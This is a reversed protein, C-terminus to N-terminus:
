NGAAATPHAAIEMARAMVPDDGAAMQVPTPLILEDPTVGTKELENGDPMVLAADSVSVGYLVGRDGGINLQRQLAHMVAGATRDGIVVGRGTLQFLRALVESASGSRSDVLVAVPGAFAGEGGGDADLPRERGREVLTGVKVRERYILGLLSQLAEVSGGGNARLDLVLGARGHLRRRAEILQEPTVTFTPLTWVLVQGREELRPQYAEAPLEAARILGAIGGGDQMGTLALAHFSPEVKANLRLDRVTGDASRIRANLWRQPRLVHAIYLIQWLHERTVLDGNVALVQDGPRVGQRAADSGPEVRQVFCSDGVMLMAWGYSVMVPIQPPVFFTHSDRLTTPLQAVLELADTYTRARRIRGDLEAARRGLDVGRFTRDYYRREIEGRVARLMGQAREREIRTIPPNQAAASRVFWGPLPASVALLLLLVAPVRLRM